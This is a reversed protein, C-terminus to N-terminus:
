SWFVLDVLTRRATELDGRGRRPRPRAPGRRCPPPLRAPHLRWRRVADWVGGDRAAARVLIASALAPAAFALSLSSTYHFPDSAPTQLTYAPRPAPKSAAHGARRTKAAQCLIADRRLNHLSLEATPGLPTRTLATLLICHHAIIKERRLNNDFYMSRPLHKFRSIVPCSYTSDGTSSKTSTPTTPRRPWQTSVRTAITTKRSRRTRTRLPTSTSETLYPGSISRGASRKRVQPAM